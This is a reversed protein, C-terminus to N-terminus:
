GPSIPLHRAVSAQQSLQPLADFEGLIAIVPGGEGAEGLLATAIGAVGSTVRFGERALMARHAAASRIEEFNLEPTEWVQAGLAFFQARKAEVLRWIQEVKQM